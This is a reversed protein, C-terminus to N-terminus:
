TTETAVSRGRGGKPGNSLWREADGLDTFVEAVIGHFELVTTITRAWGYHRHPRQRAVLACRSSANRYVLTSIWQACSHLDPLSQHDNTSRRDVLLPMGAKVTPSSLVENVVPGFDGVADTIIIASHGIQWTVPMRKSFIWPVLSKSPLTPPGHRIEYFHGGRLAPWFYSTVCTLASYCYSIEAAAHVRGLSEWWGHEGAQWRPETLRNDFTERLGAGGVQTIAYRCTTSGQNRMTPSGEVSCSIGEKLWRARHNVQPIRM